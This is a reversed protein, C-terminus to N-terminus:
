ITEVIELQANRVFCSFIYEDFDPPLPASASFVTVPDAGIAIAVPIKEGREKAFIFHVAGGKQLQM